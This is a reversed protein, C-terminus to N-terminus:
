EDELVPQEFEETVVRRIQDSAGYPFDATIEVTVTVTANPDGSLVSIIEEALEIMKMKATSPNIDATGHFSRIVKAAPGPPTVRRPPPKSPGAM